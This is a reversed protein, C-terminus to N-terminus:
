CFYKHPDTLVDGIEKVPGLDKEHVLESCLENYPGHWDIFTESDQLTRLKQNEEKTTFHVQSLVKLLDCLVDFEIGDHELIYNVVVRGAWQRPYFHEPVKQKTNIADVTRYGTWTSPLDYIDQGIGRAYKQLKRKNLNSRHLHLNHNKQWIVWVDDRFNEERERARRRRNGDLKAKKILHNAHEVDYKNCDKRADGLGPCKSNAGKKEAKAINKFFKELYLETPDVFKKAPAAM